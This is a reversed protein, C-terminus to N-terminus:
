FSLESLVANGPLARVIVKNGEIVAYRDEKPSVALALTTSVTESLAIRLGNPGALAIGDQTSVSRYNPSLDILSSNFAGGDGCAPVGIAKAPRPNERGFPEYPAGMLPDSDGCRYKGTALDIHAEGGCGEVVLTSGDASFHAPLSMGNDCGPIVNSMTRISRLTAVDILVADDDCTVVMRTGREDVIPNGRIIESDATPRSPPPCGIRASRLDQATALEIVVVKDDRVGIQRDGFFTAVARDGMQSMPLVPGIRRGTTLDYVFSPIKTSEDNLRWSAVAFRGSKTISVNYLRPRAGPPALLRAVTAGSPGLVVGAVDVDSDIGGDGDSASEILVNDFARGKAHHLERVSSMAILRVTGNEDVLVSRVAQYPWSVDASPALALERREGNAGYVVLRTALELALSGDTTFAVHKVAPRPELMAGTAGDNAADRSADGNAQPDPLVGADATASQKGCARSGCAALLTIFPVLLTITARTRM